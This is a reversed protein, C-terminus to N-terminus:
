PYSPPPPSVATVGIQVSHFFPTHQAHELLPEDDSTQLFPLYLKSDKSTPITVAATQVLRMLDRTSDVIPQPQTRQPNLRSENSHDQDLCVDLAMM